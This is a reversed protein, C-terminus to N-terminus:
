KHLPLHSGEFITGVRITFNKRCDKCVYYNRRKRAHIRESNCFPCVAGGPWLIPTLYDIAAQENPFKQMLEYTSLVKAMRRTPATTM